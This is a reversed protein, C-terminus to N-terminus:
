KIDFTDWIDAVQENPAQPRDGGRTGTGTAFSPAKPKKGGAAPTPTKEPAQQGPVQKGFASFVRRALEDRFQPTWGPQLGATQMERAMQQATFVTFQQVEPSRPLKGDDAANSGYTEWFDQNMQRQQDAASIQRQSLQPVAQVVREIHGAFEQAMEVYIANALGNTFAVLAESREGPDESELLAKTIEQPVSLNFRPGKPAEVKKEEKPRNNEALLRAIDALQQQVPDPAKPQEQQQAKSPDPTKGPTLDDGEKAETGPSTASADADEEGSAEDPEFPDWELIAKVDVTPSSDSSSAGEKPAAAGSEGEPQFVVSTMLREFLTM